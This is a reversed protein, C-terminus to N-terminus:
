KMTLLYLTRKTTSLMEDRINQLDTGFKYGSKDVLGPLTKSLWDAFKELLDSISDDKNMSMLTVTSNKNGGMAVRPGNSQMTEMFNDILEDLSDYYDGSAKHAAYNMTRWHYIRVNDLVHIFHTAIEAM